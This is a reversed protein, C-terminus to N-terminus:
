PYRYGTRPKLNIPSLTCLPVSSIHKLITPETMLKRSYPPIIPISAKMVPMNPKTTLLILCKKGVESDYSRELNLNTFTTIAEWYMYSNNDYEIGDLLRFSGKRVVYRQDKIGYKFLEYHEKSQYIWDLFM